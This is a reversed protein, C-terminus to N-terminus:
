QTRQLSLIMLIWNLIGRFIHYSDIFDAIKLLCCPGLEQGKVDGLALWQTLCCTLNTKCCREKLPKSLLSSPLITLGNGTGSGGFTHDGNSLRDSHGCENCWYTVVFESMKLVLCQADLKTQTLPYCPVIIRMLLCRLYEYTICLCSGPVMVNVHNKRRM